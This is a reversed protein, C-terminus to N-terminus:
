QSCVTIKRRKERGVSVNLTEGRPEQDKVNGEPSPNGNRAGDKTGISIYREREKNNANHKKKRREFM